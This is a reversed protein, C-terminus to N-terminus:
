FLSTRKIPPKSFLKWPIKEHNYSCTVKGWSGIIEGGIGGV